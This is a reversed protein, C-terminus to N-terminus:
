IGIRWQSQPLKSPRAPLPVSWGLARLATGAARRRNAWEQSRSALHAEIADVTRNLDRWENGLHRIAKLIPMTKLIYGSIDSRTIVAPM